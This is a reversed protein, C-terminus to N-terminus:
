TSRGAAIEIVLNGHMDIRWRDDPPIVTTSEAEEVVAPGIRWDTDLGLSERQWVPTEHREGHSAFRVARQRPTETNGRVGARLRLDPRSARASVRWTICEVPVGPVTRGFLEQYTTEFNERLAASFQSDVAGSPAPVNIEHGQNVYRMDVSREITPQENAGLAGSLRRAAERELNQLQDDIQAGEMRDLRVPLSVALDIRPPAVLLGASSAVGATPPVLVRGIGLRRAVGVAHVPGAGGTAVLTFERPDRGLEAIYVGAATAMNENVLDHIGVAAREVDLGLRRALQTEIADRAACPDLQMRGGLFYAANLYGLLLDADTVTPAKGGQGYCAPGPEAGSSEPGVSLLGLEDVRAISGGGAGIEILEVSPIMLPLGSGRKFRDVRAVEISHTLVPDEGEVVCLKATTGGMDFALVPDYGASSAVHGAILAGAAPGSEVFRVPTNSAEDADTFGGNSLMVFLPVAVRNNSLRSRMATLYRGALPQVYANAVTTCFREYERIEPAVDSSCSIAVNPLESRVIEAARREHWPNRYGHLFCVAVADVNYSALKRASSRVQDEDLPVVIDGSADIRERVELRRERPVLPDPLRIKLDYLDYRLERRIELLDAFGETTILGTPAGRREILANTILTTAHVTLRIKDTSLGHHELCDTIGSIVGDVPDQPTTLTKWVYQAGADDDTLIFDTFTGGIDIGLRMAPM